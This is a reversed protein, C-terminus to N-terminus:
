RCIVKNSNLLSSQVEVTLESTSLPLQQVGWYLGWSWEPSRLLGSAAVLVLLTHATGEEPFFIDAGVHIIGVASCVASSTSKGEAPV